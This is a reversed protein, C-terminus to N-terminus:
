RADGEANMAGLRERVVQRLHASDFPKDIRAIRTRELFAETRTSFAGGTLVVIRAVLEPAISEVGEYFAVGDVGPMALDCLILDLREGAGIRDLADQASTLVVVDHEPQLVRAIVDGVKREDDIVLVRARQTGM